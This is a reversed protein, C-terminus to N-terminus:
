AAIREPLAKLEAIVDAVSRGVIYIGGATFVNIRVEKQNDNLRGTGYKAEIMVFWGRFCGVIDGCGDVNARVMAGSKARFLGSNARWFFGGDLATVAILIDNAHKTSEIIGM